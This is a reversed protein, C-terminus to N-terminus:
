SVCKGQKKAEKNTADQIYSLLNIKNKAQKLIDINNM